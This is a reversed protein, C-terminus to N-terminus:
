IEKTHRAQPNHLIVYNRLIEGHFREPLRAWDRAEIVLPINSDQLSQTFKQLKDLPIPSLNPSRLVIDLDSAAHAEGNVRSGYAWASVEPLHYLLLRILEERDQERLFLNDNMAPPSYQIHEDPMM